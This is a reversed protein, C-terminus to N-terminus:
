LNGQLDAGLQSARLTNYVREIEETPITVTIPAAVRFAPIDVCIDVFAGDPDCHYTLTM